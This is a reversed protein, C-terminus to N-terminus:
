NRAHQCRQHQLEYQAVEAAGQEPQPCQWQLLVKGPQDGAQQGTYRERRDHEDDEVGERRQELREVKDVAVLQQVRVRAVAVVVMVAQVIPVVVVIRETATASGGTAMCRAPALVVMRVSRANTTTAITSIMNDTRVVVIVFRGAATAIYHVIMVIVSATTTTTPGATRRIPINTTGTARAAAARGAVIQQFRDAQALLALAHHPLRALRVRICSPSTKQEEGRELQAEDQEHQEHQVIHVVKLYHILKHQMSSRNRRIQPNSVLLTEKVTRVM